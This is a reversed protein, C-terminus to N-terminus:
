YYLFISIKKKENTELEDLGQNRFVHDSEDKISIPPSKITIAHKPITMWWPVFRRQLVHQLVVLVPHVAQWFDRDFRSQDIGCERSRSAGSSLLWDYELFAPSLDSDDHLSSFM